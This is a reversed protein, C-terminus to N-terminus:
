NLYSQLPGGGFFTQSLSSYVVEFLMCRDVDAGGTGEKIDLNFNQSIFFIQM